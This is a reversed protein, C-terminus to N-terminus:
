RRRYTYDYGANWTKGQDNSVEGVQRVSGDPQPRYSMRQLSSRGPARMVMDAGELGGAYLTVSSRTDVYM